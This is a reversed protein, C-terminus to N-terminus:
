EERGEDNMMEDSTTGLVWSVQKVEKAKDLFVAQETQKLNGQDTTDDTRDDTGEEARLGIATKREAIDNLIQLM